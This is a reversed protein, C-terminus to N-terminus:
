NEEEEAVVIVVEEGDFMKDYLIGDEIIEELVICENGEYVRRRLEKVFHMENGDESSFFAEWDIYKALPHRTYTKEVEKRQEETLSKMYEFNTM